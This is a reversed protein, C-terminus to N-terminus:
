IFCHGDLLIDGVKGSGASEAREVVVVQGGHRAVREGALRADTREAQGVIRERAVTMQRPQRAKQAGGRTQRRVRSAMRGALQLALVHSIQVVLLKLTGTLTVGSYCVAFPPLPGRAKTNTRMGGGVM